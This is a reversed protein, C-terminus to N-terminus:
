AGNNYGGFLVTVARGSDYAIRHQSRGSPGSVMRQTWVTGNWEWTEDSYAGNTNGGFLVIVGRASDFAMGQDFGASRGSVMQQTWAVTQAHAPAAGLLGLGALGSAATPRWRMTM